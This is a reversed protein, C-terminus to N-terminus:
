ELHKLVDAAVLNLFQDNERARQEFEGDPLDGIHQDPTDSCYLFARDCKLLHYPAERQHNLAAKKGIWDLTPM